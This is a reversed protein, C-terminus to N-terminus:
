MLILKRNPFVKEYADAVRAAYVSLDMLKREMDAEQKKLNKQPLEIKQNEEIVLQHISNWEEQKASIQKELASIESAASERTMATEQVLASLEKKTKVLDEQLRILYAAALSSDTDLETITKEQERITGNKQSIQLDLSRIEDYHLKQDKALAAEAVEIMAKQKRTYDQVRAEAADATKLRADTDLAVLANEQKLESGLLRIAAVDALAIDREEVAVTLEGTVLALEQRTTLLQAKRNEELIKEKHETARSM